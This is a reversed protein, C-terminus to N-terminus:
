FEIKRLFEKVGTIYGDRNKPFAGRHGGDDFWIVDKVKSGCKDYLDETMDPNIYDDDRCNIFLVPNEMRHIRGAIDIKNIDYGFILKIFLQAFFMTVTVIFGPMKYVSKAVNFSQQRFNSYPCDAIYFDCDDRVGCAYSLLIGSGMSVGHLGIKLHKGYKTRLHDVVAKLDYKEYYGYSINKGESSGHARSDWLILNYGLRSYMYALDLMSKHNMTVGHLLVIWKDIDNNKIELTNLKYFYPSKIKFYILPIGKIWDKIDKEYEPEHMPFSYEHIDFDPRLKKHAIKFSTILGVAVLALIVLAIVILFYGM